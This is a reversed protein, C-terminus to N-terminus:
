MNNIIKQMRWSVLTKFINEIVEFKNVFVNTDPVIFYNNRIIKNWNSITQAHEFCANSISCNFGEETLRKYNENQASLENM